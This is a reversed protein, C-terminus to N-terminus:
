RIVNSKKVSYYITQVQIRGNEILFSDAGDPIYSEDGSGTWHLFFLRDHGTRVHYKFHGGPLQDALLEAAARVGAHGRFTGYNTLLVIDHAYNRAIDEALQSTRALRLHDDFVVQPLRFSPDIPPM